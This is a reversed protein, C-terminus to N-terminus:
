RGAGSSSPERESNESPYRVPAEAAAPRLREAIEGVTRLIGLESADV